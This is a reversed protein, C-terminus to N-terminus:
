HDGAPAPLSDSPLIVVNPSAGLLYRDFVKRVDSPRVSRIQAPIKKVDSPNRGLVAYAMLHDSLIRYTPEFFWREYFGALSEKAANIDDSTMNRRVDLMAARLARRVSDPTVMSQTNFVVAMIGPGTDVMDPAQWKGIRGDFFDTGGLSSALRLALPSTQSRSPEDVPDSRGLLLQDAVLLPLQDKTGLEPKPWSAGVLNHASTNQNTIVVSEGTHLAPVRLSIRPSRASESFRLRKESQAVFAMTSDLDINGAVVLVTNAPTYVPAIAAAIEPRTTQRVVDIEDSLRPSLGRALATLADYASFQSARDRGLEALVRAVERSYVLSDNEFRGARAMYSHIASPVAAPPIVSVFSTYYPRTLANGDYTNVGAPWRPGAISSRNNAVIHEILHAWGFRADQMAGYLVYSGVFVRPQNKDVVPLRALVVRYGSALTESRVEIQSVGAQQPTVPLPHVNSRTGSCAALAIAATVIRAKM